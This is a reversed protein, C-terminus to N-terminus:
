GVDILDDLGDVASGSVFNSLLMPDRDELRSQTLQTESIDRCQVGDASM